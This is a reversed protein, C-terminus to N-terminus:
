PTNDELKCSCNLDLWYGCNPAHKPATAPAPAGVTSTPEIFRLLLAALKTSKCCWYILSEDTSTTGLVEYCLAKWEAREDETLVSAQAATTPAPAGVTLRDILEDFDIATNIYGGLRLVGNIREITKQEQETLVSAATTPAQAEAQSTRARLLTEVDSVLQVANRDPTVASREHSAKIGAVRKQIAAVEAETTAEAQLRSKLARALIVGDKGIRGDFQGDMAIFNECIRLLESTDTNSMALDDRIRRPVLVAGVGLTQNAQM